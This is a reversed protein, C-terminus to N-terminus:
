GVLFNEETFTGDATYEDNFYLWKDCVSMFKKDRSLVLYAMGFLTFYNPYDPNGSYLISGDAQEEKFFHGKDFADHLTLDIYTDSIGLQKMKEKDVRVLMKRM